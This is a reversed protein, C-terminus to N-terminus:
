RVNCPQLVWRPEDHDPNIRVLGIGEKRYRDLLNPPPIVDMNLVRYFCKDRGLKPDTWVRAERPSAVRQGM